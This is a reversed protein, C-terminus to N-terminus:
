VLCRLHELLDDFDAPETLPNMITTRLHYRGDLDTGVIYFRGDEVLRRRLVRNDATRHRFCVINGEPPLALEFDSSAAIKDALVGALEFLRDVVEGFWGEGHARVASWLEISM